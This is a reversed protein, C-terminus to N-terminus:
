WKKKRKKERVYGQTMQSEEPLWDFVLDDWSDLERSATYFDFWTDGTYERTQHDVSYFVLRDWQLAHDIDDEDFYRVDSLERFPQCTYNKSYFHTYGSPTTAYFEVRVQPYEEHSIEFWQMNGYALKVAKLPTAAEVVMPKLIGQGTSIGLEYETM